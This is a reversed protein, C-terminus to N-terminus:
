TDEWCKKDLKMFLGDIKVFFLEKPKYGKSILDDRAFLEWNPMGNTDDLAYDVAEKPTNVNTFISVINYRRCCFSIEPKNSPTDYFYYNIKVIFVPKNNCGLYPEYCTNKNDIKIKSPIFKKSKVPPM